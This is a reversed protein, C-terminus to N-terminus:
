FADGPVEVGDPRPGEYFEPNMRSSVGEEALKAEFEQRLARDEEHYPIASGGKKVDIAGYDM